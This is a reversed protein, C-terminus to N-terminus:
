AAFFTEMIERSHRLHSGPWYIRGCDPCTSFSRRTQWVYDPVRGAVAEHAISVVPTNCALCRSFLRVRDRPIDLQRIM